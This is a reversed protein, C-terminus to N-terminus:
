PAMGPLHPTANKSGTPLSWDVPAVGDAALLQNAQSFPRSGFFGRRASFPSPHASTLVHHRRPDILAQKGAAYAGWLIFVLPQKAVEDLKGVLADTFREWGIGAHGGPRGAPVTLVANLLLVGERAWAELSGSDPPPQGLDEALERFINKLSPPPRVGTPVSFSLGQAQGPGHYPDQGLIVVKVAEPATLELARFVARRPPYVTTTAYADDVHAALSAFSAEPVADRLLRRWAAPISEALRRGVDPVHSADNPTQLFAEGEARRTTTM